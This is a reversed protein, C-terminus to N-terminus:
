NFLRDGQEKIVQKAKRICAEGCEDASGFMDARILHHSKVEGDIEKSIIGALRYQSGERQPNPTITFDMGHHEGTWVAEFGADDAMESLAIFERYLDAHNQNPSLREMHVFLSFRM